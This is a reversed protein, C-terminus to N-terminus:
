GRIVLSSWSRWGLVLHQWYSSGLRWIHPDFILAAVCLGKVTWIVMRVFWEGVGAGEKRVGWFLILTAGFCCTWCFRECHSPKKRRRMEQKEKRGFDLFKKKKKKPFFSVFLCALWLAEIHEPHKVQTRTCLHVPFTSLQRM